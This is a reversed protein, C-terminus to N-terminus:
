ICSHYLRTLQFNLHMAVYQQQFITIDILSFRECNSIENSKFIWLIHLMLITSCQNLNRVTHVKLHAKSTFNWWLKSESNHQLLAMMINELFQVKKEMRPLCSISYHVKWPLQWLSLTVIYSNKEFRNRANVWCSTLEELQLIATYM